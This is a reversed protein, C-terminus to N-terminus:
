AKSDRCCMGAVDGLRELDGPKCISFQQTQRRESVSIRGAENYILCVEKFDCRGGFQVKFFSYLFNRVFVIM